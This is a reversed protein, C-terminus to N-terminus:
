AFLRCRRKCRGFFTFYILGCSIVTALVWAVLVPTSTEAASRLPRIAFITLLRLPVVALPFTLLGVATDFIIGSPLRLCCSELSELFILGLPFIVGCIYAYYALLAIEARVSPAQFMSDLTRPFYALMGAMLLHNYYRFGSTTALFVDPLKQRAMSDFTALAEDLSARAGVARSALMLWSINRYVVPRDSEVACTCTRVTFTSLSSKIQARKRSWMRLIVALIAGGLAYLATLSDDGLFMEALVCLYIILYSSLLTMCYSVSIVHIHKADRTSLFTAVEYVTWLKRLYVDTYVVVMKSSKEIFAGLKAIGQRQVEQDDQAICTKDLFLVAGHYGVYSLASRILFMVFCFVPFFIVRCVVSGHQLVTFHLALRVLVIVVCSVAFSLDFNFHVCLTLYKKWRGVSWNHSIFADLQQVVSSLSYTDCSGISSSFISGFSALLFSLHVGRLLHRCDEFTVLYSMRGIWRPDFDLNRLTASQRVDSLRDDFTNSSGAPLMTILTKHQDYTDNQNESTVVKLGSESEGDTHLPDELNIAVVDLAPKADNDDAELPMFDLVDSSHLPTEPGVNDIEPSCCGFIVEQLTCDTSM